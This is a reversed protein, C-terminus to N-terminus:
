ISCVVGACVCAHMYVRWLLPARLSGGFMQSSATMFGKYSVQLITHTVSM